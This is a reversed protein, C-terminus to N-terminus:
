EVYGKGERKKLVMNPIRYGNCETQGSKMEVKYNMGRDSQRVVALILLIFDSDNEISIDKSEISNQSEKFLGDVFAKVRSVPYGNKIYEIMGSMALESFDDDRTIKLPETDIRRNRVNKHYLSKGDIFEQRNVRINNELLEGVAEKEEGEAQAYTKLLHALKGKITQDATMLYRMKEISSKTYVSHKRDIQNVIGDMSQYADTVYDIASIIEKEAQSKDEYKKIVMARECMTNMFEEDAMVDTLITQIPTIYRQISDMTKIPHYIRDALQKYSEFHNKLLDNIENYKEINRLYSRIGHYLSRLQYELQETNAKASLVAEYMLSQQEDKAQKLGSYTSFVLSTYEQQGGEGIESLLKMVSIAYPRPTIIEIFSGDLFEKEVWGTKIFRNLILRAKSSPTLSGDPLEDDDEPNFEKDEQLSILSSIYDDVRINLEFKFMQHLLLLAEVYIERNGSVLVSFFNSPIIDFVSLM